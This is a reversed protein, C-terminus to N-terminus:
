DLFITMSKHLKLIKGYHVKKFKKFIGNSFMGIFSITQSYDVGIYKLHFM